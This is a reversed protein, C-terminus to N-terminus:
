LQPTSMEKVNLEGQVTKVPEIRSAGREVAETLEPFKGLEKLLTDGAAIFFGNYNDQMKKCEAALTAMIKNEGSDRVLNALPDIKEQITESVRKIDACLEEVSNLDVNLVGVISV